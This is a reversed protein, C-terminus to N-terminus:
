CRGPRAPPTRWKGGLLTPREAVCGRMQRWRRRGGLATRATTSPTPHCPRAPVHSAEKNWSAESGPEASHALKKGCRLIFNPAACVSPAIVGRPHPRCLIKGIPWLAIGALKLHAWAFPIGIITVAFISAPSSMASRSGGAPWCSGSSRGSCGSRAPASIEWVPSRTARGSELRVAVPHIGRNQVGRAGLSPRRHHNGHHHWRGGVRVGDM